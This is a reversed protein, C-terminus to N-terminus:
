GALRQRRAPDALLVFDGADGAEESRFGAAEHKGASNVHITSRPASRGSERKETCSEQLTWPVGGTRGSARSPCATTGTVRDADLVNGLQWFRGLEGRLNM